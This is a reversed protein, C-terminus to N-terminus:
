WHEPDADPDLDTLTQAERIRMWIQVLIDLIWLLVLFDKVQPRNDNIDRIMINLKLESQRRFPVGWDSARFVPHRPISVM